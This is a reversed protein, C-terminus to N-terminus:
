LTLLRCPKGREKMELYVRRQDQESKCEVVVQFLQPFSRKQTEKRRDGLNRVTPEKRM